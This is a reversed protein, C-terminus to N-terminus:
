GRPHRLNQIMKIQADLAFPEPEPEKLLMAQLAEPSRVQRLANLRKEFSDVVVAFGQKFTRLSLQEFVEAYADLIRKASAPKM